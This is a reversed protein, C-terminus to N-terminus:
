RVHLLQKRCIPRMAAGTCKSKMQDITLTPSFNPLISLSPHLFLTTRMSEVVTRKRITAGTCKVSESKRKMAAQPLSKRPLFVMQLPLEKIMRTRHTAVNTTSTAWREVHGAPSIPRRAGEGAGQVGKTLQNIVAKQRIM